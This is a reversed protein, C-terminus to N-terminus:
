QINLGVRTRVHLTSQLLSVGSNESWLEFLNECWGLRVPCDSLVSCPKILISLEPTFAGWSLFGVAVILCFCLSAIVMYIICTVQYVISQAGLEEESIVGALFGAIEYLWWETWYMLMSPIALRLFPGWEQLCDASWGLLHYLTCHIWYFINMCMLVNESVLSIKFKLFSPHPRISAVSLSGSFANFGISLLPSHSRFHLNKGATHRIM